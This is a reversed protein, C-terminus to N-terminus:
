IGGFRRKRQAFEKIACEFDEACFDPWFKKISIFEAYASQWILFNSLRLEGGTRIILDIDPQNKTYLFKEFIKESVEDKIIKKDCIENALNLAARVIESRGSYNIALNLILGNNKRSIEEVKQELEIIEKSLNLKDGIFNIKINEKFNKILNELQGKFISMLGIVEDSPRNWNEKSFV